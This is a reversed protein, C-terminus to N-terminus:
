RRIKDGEAKFNTPFGKIEDVCVLENGCVSCLASTHIIGSRIIMQLKNTFFEKNYASCKSNQCKYTM